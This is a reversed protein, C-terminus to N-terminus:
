FNKGINIYQTEQLTSDQKKLTTLIEAKFNNKLTDLEKEEM